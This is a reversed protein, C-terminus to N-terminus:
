SENGGEAPQLTKFSFQPGMWLRRHPGVHTSIEVQSLWRDEDGGGSGGGVGAGGVDDEDLYSPTHRHLLMGGRRNDLRNAAAAEALMLPSDIPLPPQLQALDRPQTLAWQGHASVHLEVPSSECIKEKPLTSDPTVDLTYELLVGHNSMVFLSEHPRRQQRGGGFMHHQSGVLWARPPAFAVAVRFPRLLTFFQELHSM